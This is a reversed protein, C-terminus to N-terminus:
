TGPAEDKVSAAASQGEAKVNEASEQATDKVEQVAQTASEKLDQGVQQGVAKAEDMLSSDKAAETIRQAAQTEAKSAPVLASLVVGAGFAVLGAALPSGEAQHRVAGVASGATGTVSDVAGHAASHASDGAGSATGMVSDKMSSLRGRVAEKRRDVIRQPSVKDYLADVDRSLNERTDAIETTM